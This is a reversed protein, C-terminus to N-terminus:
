LKGQNLFVFHDEIKSRGVFILMCFSITSMQWMQTVMFYKKMFSSKNVISDFRPGYKSSMYFISCDKQVFSVNLFFNLCYDYTFWLLFPFFFRRLSSYNKWKNVIFNGYSYMWSTKKMFKIKNVMFVFRDQTIGKNWKM